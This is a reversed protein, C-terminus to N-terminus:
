EGDGDERYGAGVTGEGEEEEEGGSARKRGRACGLVTAPVAVAPLRGVAAVVEGLLALM